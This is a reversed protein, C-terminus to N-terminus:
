QAASSAELKAPPEKACPGDGPRPELGLLGLEAARALQAEVTGRLLGPQRELWLSTPVPGPGLLCIRRERGDQARLTLDLELASRPPKGGSEVLRVVMGGLVVPAGGPTGAAEASAPRPGPLAQGLEIPAAAAGLAWAKRAQEARWAAEEKEVHKAALDVGRAAGVFTGFFAGAPIAVVACATVLIAGIEGVAEDCRGIGYFAGAVSGVVFGGLGAALKLGTGDGPRRSHFEVQVRAAPDATKAAAFPRAEEAAVPNATSGRAGRLDALLGPAARAVLAIVAKRVPAGGDAEWESLRRPRPDAALIWAPGLRGRGALARSEEGSEDVMAREVRPLSLRTRIRVWLAALPDPGAGSALTVDDLRVELRASMGRDEYEGARRFPLPIQSPGAEVLTTVIARETDLGLAIRPPDGRGSRDRAGKSTEREVVAGAATAEIEVATVLALEQATPIRHPSLSACGATLALTLGWPLCARVRAGTRGRLPTRKM